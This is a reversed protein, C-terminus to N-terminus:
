TESMPQMFFNASINVSGRCLCCTLPINRGLLLGNFREQKQKFEADLWSHLCSVHFLHKGPCPFDVLQGLNADVTSSSTGSDSCDDSGTEIDCFKMSGTEIAESKPETTQKEIDLSLALTFGDQSDSFRCLDYSNVLPLESAKVSTDIASLSINLTRQQKLLDFCIKKGQPDNHIEDVQSHSDIQVDKQITKMENLCIPCAQSAPLSCSTIEKCGHGELWLRWRNTKEDLACEANVNSRLPYCFISMRIALYFAFLGFVSSIYLLSTAFTLPAQSAIVHDGIM